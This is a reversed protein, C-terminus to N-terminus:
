DNDVVLVPRPRKIVVEIGCAMLAEHLLDVGTRERHRDTLLALAEAQKHTLPRDVDITRCVSEANIEEIEQENM